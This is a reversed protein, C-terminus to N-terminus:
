CVWILLTAQPVSYWDSVWSLCVLYSCEFSTVGRLLARIRIVCRIVCHIRM